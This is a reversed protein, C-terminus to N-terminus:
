VLNRLLSFDFDNIVEKGYLITEFEYWIPIIDTIHGFDDRYIVANILFKYEINDVKGTINQMSIHNSKGIESILKSLVDEYINQKIEIM